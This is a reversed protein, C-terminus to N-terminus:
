NSKNISVSFDSTYSASSNFTCRCLDVRSGFVLTSSIFCTKVWCRLKKKEVMWWKLAGKEGGLM